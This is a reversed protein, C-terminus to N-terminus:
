IGRRITQLFEELGTNNCPWTKQKLCNEISKNIRDGLKSPTLTSCFSILLILVIWLILAKLLDM